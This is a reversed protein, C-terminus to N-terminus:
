PRYNKRDEYLSRASPDVSRGGNAAGGVQTLVLALGKAVRGMLRLFPKFMTPGKETLEVRHLLSPRCLKLAFSAKADRLEFTTMLPVTV